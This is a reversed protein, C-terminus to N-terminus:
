IGLETVDQGETWTVSYTIEGYTLFERAIGAKHLEHLDHPSVIGKFKNYDNTDWNYYDVIMYKISASYTKVGNVTTVTLGIVDVDDFYSGLAYQWNQTALSGQMPHGEALQNVTITENERALAEAARLANNIATNRNALAGSDDTFFSPMDVNYTTGTNDLYHKMLASAAPMNILSGGAAILNAKSKVGLFGTLESSSMSSGANYEAESAAQQKIRDASPATEEETSYSMSGITVEIPGRIEAYSIPDPMLTSQLATLYKVEEGDFIYLSIYFEEDFKEETINTLCISMNSHGFRKASHFYIRKGTSSIDVPKCTDPDLPAGGNLYGVYAGVMGYDVTKGTVREYEALAENDIKYSACFSVGVESIAYGLFTFVPPTQESTGDNATCGENQCAKTKIGYTAFDEYIITEGGDFNHVPSDVAYLFTCRECLDVCPNYAVLAHSPYFADCKSYGYVFHYGSPETADADYESASVLPSSYFKSGNNANATDQAVLARLEVAESFTGTFIFTINLSSDNANTYGLLHTGVSALTSPIYVRKLAKLTLNGAGLHTLSDGLRLEALSTCGSLNSDGISTLTNPFTLSTLASCNKFNNSALITTLGEEITVSSLATCGSFVDYNFEYVGSPVYISKLSSCSSFIGIWSGTLSSDKPINVTALSSCGRFAYNGMTTLSGPITVETIASCFAFVENGMSLLSNSLRLTELSKCSYFAQNGISTLNDPLELSTIPCARFANSGISVLASPMNIESLICGSFANNGITEINDSFVVDALLSCGNFAYNGISTVSDGMTVSTLASCGHFCDTSIATLSDPLDVSVLAKCNQFCKNGISTIGDPLEMSALVTCGYFAQSGLSTISEPITINSLSTCGYFASTNISTMSPALTVDSLLACNAFLSGATTKLNVCKSMDASVLAEATNLFDGKTFTVLTSPFVVEIMSDCENFNINSRDDHHIITIGEPIEYRIVSAHSYTYGTEDNLISPDFYQFREGRKKSDKNYDLAYASPYTSYTGDGNDLVMRENISLKPSYDYGEIINVTGYENTDSYIIGNEGTIEEAGVTLSLLLTVTLVAIILMITKKM